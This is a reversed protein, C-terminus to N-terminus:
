SNIQNFIADMIKATLIIEKYTIPLPSDELVSRYFSNILFKMGSNLHFDNKLFSSINNIFNGLYQNAFVIPPIFKNLYSKYPTGNFKILTQHDDDIILSNKPGYVRFQHLSPSMQSSFTFYATTFDKDHIIVRLEDIVDTENISQLLPSTFGNAIVQPSDDTLFEAIKAIGHSIINHLLKGPLSRVWHNKDGLLAKAYSQDGLNYCWISEMHVPQGGLYGSTILERMKIAVPTFQANHGVTLKLKKKIAFAILKEAEYTNITFPKEIYIHCGSELCLKGLVFHSQPPTTIHIIDPTSVELLRTVDNFYHQVDFREHLQKAMLIERDCVGVIKCDPIRQIETAHLDAIKGCGIIGVKIM